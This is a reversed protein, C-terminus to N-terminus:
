SIPEENALTSVIALVEGTTFKLCLHFFSMSALMAVNRALAIRWPLEPKQPLRLGESLIRSRQFVGVRPM